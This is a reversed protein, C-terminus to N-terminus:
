LTVKEMTRTDLIYAGPNNALWQQTFLYATTFLHPSYAHLRGDARVLAYPWHYEEPSCESMKKYPTPQNSM